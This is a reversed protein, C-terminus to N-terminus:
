WDLGLEALQERIEPINWIVPGGVSTGVALLDRDPSWVQSWVAGNGEPLM